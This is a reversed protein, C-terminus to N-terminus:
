QKSQGHNGTRQLVRTLKPMVVGFVATNWLIHIMYFGLGLTIFRLINIWKLGTLAIFGLTSLVDYILTVSVGMIGFFLRPNMHIAPNHMLYHAFGGLLGALSMGLCKAIILPAAAAGFPSTMSFLLETLLGAILGRFSGESFGALFITAIVLEINPISLLAYRLVLATATWLSLRTLKRTTWQM